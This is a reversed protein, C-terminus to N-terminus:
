NGSPNTQNESPLKVFSKWTHVAAVVESAESSSSSREVCDIAAAAIRDALRDRSAGGAASFAAAASHDAQGPAAEAAACVLDVVAASSSSPSIAEKLVQPPSAVGLAAAQALITPAFDPNALVLAAVDAASQASGLSASVSSPLTANTASFAPAGLAIALAVISVSVIRPM